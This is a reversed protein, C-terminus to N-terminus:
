AGSREARMARVACLGLSAAVLPATYVAPPLTGALVLSLLPGLWLAVLWVRARVTAGFGDRALFLAAALALTMEYHYAYPTALPVALCLTAAKLDASPRALSWVRGVVAAAALAVGIQVPLALGHPVGGLRLLAYWTMMRDFHMIETTMLGSMLRLGAFFHAWYEVGLAATSLAVLAATGAVAWAIARWHGGAVLAVPIMLGLQPKVTLAAIVLGALVPRGAALAWLAGLLGATWLLSMNGLMLAILVAPGALVLPVGGPLPAAFPRAAAAFAGWAVASYVLYAASFPLLGLPMVALHWAPPYLWLLDGPPTDPALALAARLTDPDFAALPTGALGLKAAAWFATFDIRVAEGAFGPANVEILMQMAFSVYAFAMVGAVTWGFRRLRSADAGSAAGAREQGGPAERGPRGTTSEIAQM